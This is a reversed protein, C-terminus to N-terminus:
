EARCHEPEIQANLMQKEKNTQKRKKEAGCHKTEDTQWIEKPLSM